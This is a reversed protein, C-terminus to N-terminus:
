TEWNNQYLRQEDALRAFLSPDKTALEDLRTGCSPCHRIRLSESLTVNEPLSFSSKPFKKMTNENDATVARMQLAFRLGADTKCVLVALGRQGANDILNTLLHCCLM